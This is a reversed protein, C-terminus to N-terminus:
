KWVMLVFLAKLLLINPSDPEGKWTTTHRLLHGYAVKYRLTLSWPGWHAPM